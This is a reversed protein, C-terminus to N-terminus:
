EEAQKSLPIPRLIGDPYPEFGEVNSQLAFDNNQHFLYVYPAEEHIIEMAQDYLAKREGEDSIRRAENLLSDVEENSYGSDNDDGGSVMFDYINQDPDVRGSWGLFLAQFDGSTGQELLTGFEVRELEVTIGASELNQQIVQGLQQSTPSPDIKLTFTFGDPEGAEELLAEAEEVTGREFEDTEGYALSNPGFPSNGAVGGEGRLVADVIAERNVLTYVAQRLQMNDFPEQRTNLFIGQYGLGPENSVTYEGGDELSQVEVYPIQDIVDLEGSQLNQFQVNSDNIGRYEITQIQPEEGWYEENREVTISQGRLREVFKYPGTGVPNQSVRGDSEEISRPSAMIGARDALVTLFPAFPESLTVEVTLPDVVEVSEISQVETSRTSEDTQYRELNTKVAEADFEAGDHFVVGDRLEFTYVTGDESVEYNEALMPVIEGEQDIDVLKDYISAMVQRDVFASSFAPDLEPPEDELAVVLTDDPTSSVSGSGDSGGCGAVLLLAAFFSVVIGFRIVRNTM